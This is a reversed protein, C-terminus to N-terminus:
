AAQVATVLRSIESQMGEAEGALAYALTKVEHGVDADGVM